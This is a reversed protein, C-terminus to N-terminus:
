RTFGTLYPESYLRKLAPLLAGHHRGPIKSYVMM